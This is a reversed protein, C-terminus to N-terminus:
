RSSRIARRGPAACRQGAHRQRLAHLHHRAVPAAAAEKLRHLRLARAVRAQEQVQLLDQPLKTRVTPNSTTGIIASLSTILPRLPPICACVHMHQRLPLTSSSGRAAAYVTPQRHSQPAVLRELLGGPRASQSPTHM